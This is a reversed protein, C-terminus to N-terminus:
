QLTASSKKFSVTPFRFRVAIRVMRTSRGSLATLLIGDILIKPLIIMHQYKDSLLAINSIKTFRSSSVNGISPLTRKNHKKTKKMKPITPTCNHAPRKLYEIKNNSRKM